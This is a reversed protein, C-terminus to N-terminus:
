EESEVRIIHMANVRELTPHELLTPEWDPPIDVETAYIAASESFDLTKLPVDALM